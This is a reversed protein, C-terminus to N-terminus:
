KFFTTLKYSIKFIYKKILNQLNYNFYILKSNEEDCIAQQM